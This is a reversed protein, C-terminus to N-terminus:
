LKGMVGLDPSLNFTLRLSVLYMMLFFPVTRMNQCKEGKSCM